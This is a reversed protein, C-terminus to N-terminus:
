GFLSHMATTLDSIRGLDTHDSLDASAVTVLRAAASTCGLSGALSRLAEPGPARDLTGNGYIIVPLVATGPRTREVLAVTQLLARWCPTRVIGPSPEHTTMEQGGGGMIWDHGCLDETAVLVAVPGARGRGSGVGVIGSGKPVLPTRVLTELRPALLDLVSQVTGALGEAGTPQSLRHWTAFVLAALGDDGKAATTAPVPVVAAVAPAAITASGRGELRNRLDARVDRIDLQMERVAGAVRVISEHLHDIVRDFQRLGVLGGDPLPPITEATGTQATGAAPGGPGGPGGPHRRSSAIWAEVTALRQSVDTMTRGLRELEEAPRGAQHSVVGTLHAVRERLEQISQGLANIRMTEPLQVVASHMAALDARFDKLRTGVHLALDRVITEAYDFPDVTEQLEAVISTGAPKLADTPVAAGDKSDRSVDSM